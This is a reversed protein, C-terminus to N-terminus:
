QLAKVITDVNHRVMGAYTGEPTGEKGMADSFLEGGLKVKHGRAACGEQLAQLNRDSVSSEVFVAKIKKEVLFRVLANIEKVGAEDETSIGQIGKVEVDYARGFYRFADHATV